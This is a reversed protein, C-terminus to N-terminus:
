GTITSNSKASITKGRREEGATGRAVGRAGAGTKPAAVPMEAAITSSVVL